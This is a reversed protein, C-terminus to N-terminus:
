YKTEKYILNAKAWELWEASAESNSELERKDKGTERKDKGTERQGCNQCV